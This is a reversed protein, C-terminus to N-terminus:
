RDIDKDKYPFPTVDPIDDLIISANKLKL